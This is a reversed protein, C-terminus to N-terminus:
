GHLLQSQSAPDFYSEAPIQHGGWAVPESFGEPACETPNTVTWSEVIDLLFVAVPEENPNLLVLHDGYVDASAATVHQTGHAALRFQVIYTKDTM